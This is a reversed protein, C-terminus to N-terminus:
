DVFFFNIPKQINTYKKMIFSIKNFDWTPCPLNVIHYMM